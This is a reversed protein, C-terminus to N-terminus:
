KVQPAYTKIQTAQPVNIGYRELTPTTKLSNFFNNMNRRKDKRTPDSDLAAPMFADMQQKSEELNFRGEALKALIGGYTNIYSKRDAPHTSGALFKNDLTDFANNMNARLKELERAQGLEKSATAVDEKPMVGSIELARVAQAPDSASWHSLATRKMALQQMLPAAQMDLQGAATLARAQAEPTAAKAAAMKLQNSAIETQMVKTMTAADHLNGFQRMNFSLLNEKKGLDAKQAEVDRDIQSNLFGLAPNPGGTLGSGIGGLILGISTSVKQGTGMANWYHKPDIHGNQIDHALAQRENELESYHDNYTKQQAQLTQNSQELAQSQQEGLQSEAQAQQQIGAKSENLGHQFMSAQQGLGMDGLQSQTQTQPPPALSQQNQETQTPVNSVPELGAKTRAQDRRIAEQQEKQQSTQSSIQAQQKEEGMKDVFQDEVKQRDLTHLPDTSLATDVKNQLQEEPSPAPFAQKPDTAFAESVLDGYKNNVEGGDALKQMPLASLSKAMDKSLANKAIRIEHGRPHKLTASNKDEHVKKFKSFDM